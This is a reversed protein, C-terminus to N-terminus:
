QCTVTVTATGGSQTAGAFSGSGSCATTSQGSTRTGSFTVTGASATVQCTFGTITQGQTTPTCSGNLVSNGQANVATLSTVADAKKNSPSYNFNITLPYNVVTTTCTIALAPSLTTNAGIASYSGSGTCTQTANSGTYTLTGAVGSHVPCNFPGAGTGTCQVAGYTDTFSLVSSTPSGGTIPVTLTVTASSAGLVQVVVNARNKLRDRNAANPNVDAPSSSGTLGTNSRRFDFTVTRQGGSDSNGQVQGANLANAGNGVAGVSVSSTGTPRCWGGTYASDQNPLPSDTCTPARGTVEVEYFPVNVLYDSGAAKQARVKDLLTSFLYDVYVARGTLQVKDGVQMVLPNSSNRQAAPPTTPLTFSQGYFKTISNDNLINDVIHQVYAAYDDKATSGTTTFDNLSFAQTNVLQWDQYVRWYGGVRKMRCSEVYNQGATAIAGATTYHNHKGNTYDDAGGADRFPDYCRDFIGNAPDCYKLGDATGDGGGTTLPDSTTPNAAVTDTANSGPDHHDRCCATCMDDQQNNAKTGVDKTVVDGDVDRFSNTTGAVWVAHAPTRGSGQTAGLTCTCGVTTFDEQRLLVGTAAYTYATFKVQGGSVTPVLTERHTDVGVDVPVVGASTSPTYIVEPGTNSAGAGASPGGSLGAASDPSMSNIIDALQVSQTTGTQDVWSVTVTVQKQAVSASASGAPDVVATQSVPSGFYQPSVTWSLSYDTNGVVNSGNSTSTDAPLNLNGNADKAGGANTDIETFAFASAGTGTGFRRLDDLKQQALQVAVSRADAEGSGRLFEGQLKVVALVGLSFIAAAVLVEVLSFGAQHKARTQM